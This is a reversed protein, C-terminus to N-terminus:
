IKRMITLGHATPFNIYQLLGNDLWNQMDLPIPGFRSDTLTVCDHIAIFGGHKIHPWLKVLEFFRTALETDCHLFDMPETPIYSEARGIIVEFNKFGMKTLKDEAIKGVYGNHEVTYLKGGTSELALCIASASVGINTGLEVCVRANTLRILGYLFECEALSIGTPGTPAQLYELDKHGFSEENPAHNYIYKMPDRQMLEKSASM